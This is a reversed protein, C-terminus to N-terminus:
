RLRKRFRFDLGYKGDEDRTAVVSLTKSVSYEIVVIQEQNTTLNRSFTVVMDKSIRESLTIRATPDNEAGALFPDVRFTELGFIRQVRKGLVGTLNESLVSAASVGAMESQQRSTETGTGTKGTTLLSLVDVTSMPPDSTVNINLHDLDGMVDLILQYNMVDAEARIELVPNIRNRDIFDASANAIEFRNGRFFITGETAEVRGTLSPYAPTGRLNLRMNGRLKALENDIVVGNDSHIDVNLRLGLLYPETTLPGSQSVSRSALQELLNFSRVYETRVVDVDGTLLQM